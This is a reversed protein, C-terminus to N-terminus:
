IKSIEQTYSSTKAEFPCMFTGFLYIFLGYIYIGFKITIQGAAEFCVTLYVSLSVWFTYCREMDLM